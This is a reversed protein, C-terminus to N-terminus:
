AELSAVGFVGGMVNNLAQAWWSQFSLFSFIAACTSCVERLNVDTREIKRKKQVCVSTMFVHVCVDISLLYQNSYVCVLMRIYM